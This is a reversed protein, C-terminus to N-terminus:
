WFGEEGYSVIGRSDYVSKRVQHNMARGIAMILAVVGDIKERSKEKNPKINGAADHEVFVNDMMWDMVKHGGHAIRRTLVLRMLEKAAPSMSKYGQGFPVVTLGADGLNQVLMDAGWRDYSIEKINYKKNLDIIFKEIFSYHIANGPTAKLLGKKVWEDYLVHDRKVRSAMQDEPVWFFPLVQYKDDEDDPDEPPFVLVFATVDNTSSLDLGGYCVRGKLRNPNVPFNCKQWDLSPMWRVANNVWMNLNLQKFINEETVDSKANECAVRMDELTCTIDLSPNCAKWVSEDTWDDDHSASYIVPYFTPDKRKGSIIDEAKEHQKYCISTKDTGATTIIFYLPQTRAMGSGRTMVDFFRRDPLAHLEDFIVGHVNLGHKTYAEASLVQYFSNLPKYILKKEAINTKIFRRLERCQDVMDCAVDFVISAQRRDSACSYVEARPERDACTLLLAVAAALESKGQKKPIETYSVRFQRYGNAKKVGFIDRIIQEQWDILEFPEGAWQGGPHKLCSIFGCAIDASLKDYYSDPQMFRTPTYEM